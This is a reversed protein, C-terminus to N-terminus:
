SLRGVVISHFAVSVDHHMKTGNQETFLHEIEDYGDFSSLDTRGSAIALNLVVLQADSLRDLALKVGTYVHPNMKSAEKKNFLRKNESEWEIVNGV